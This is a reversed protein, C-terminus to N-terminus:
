FCTGTGQVHTTSDGMGIFAQNSNFSDAIGSLGGTATANTFSQNGSGVSHISACSFGGETRFTAVPGTGTWTVSATFSAPLGFNSGHPCPQTTPDISANLSASQLGSGITFASAPIIFCGSFSPPFTAPSINLDTESQTTTPGGAPSSVNTFTSVSINLRPQSPDSPVIGLSAQQSMFRYNGPGLPGGGAGKGGLQSCADLPTGQAHIRQDFSSLNAGSIPFPSGPLLSTSATANTATSGSSTTRTESMYGGCAYRGVGSSSFNSGVSTWTVSVTFPRTFGNVPNGQCARTTDTVTTNLVASTSGFTFDSAGDPIFCGNGCVGALYDCAQFNVDVESQSTSPGVLPNSVNTTADVNVSLQPNSCCLNFGAFVNTNVYNGAPLPGGGPGGQGLISLSGAAVRAESPIAAAAFTVSLCVLMSVALALRRLLRMANGGM